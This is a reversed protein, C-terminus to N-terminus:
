AAPPDSPFAGAEILVRRRRDSPGSPRYFSALLLHLNVTLSNMAAVEIPLAGALQALDAQLLEAYDIWPRRAAEHGLVGLKEWDEIEEVVRARADRPALGLSHGCLYILPRGDRAVPLAFQERFITLPDAADLAQAQQLSTEFSM